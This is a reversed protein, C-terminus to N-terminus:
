APSYARWVWLDEGDGMGVVCGALAGSPSTDTRCMWSEAWRMIPLANHRSSAHAVELSRVGHAIQSVAQQSLVRYAYLM